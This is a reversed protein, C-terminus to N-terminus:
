LGHEPPIPSVPNEPRVLLTEMPVGNKYQTLLSIMEDFRKTEYVVHAMKKPAAM